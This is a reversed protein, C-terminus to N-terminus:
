QGWTEKSLRQSTKLTWQRHMLWAICQTFPAGPCHCHFSLSRWRWHNRSGWWTRGSEHKHYAMNTHASIKRSSRIGLRQWDTRSDWTAVGSVNRSAGPLFMKWCGVNQNNKVSTTVLSQCSKQGAMMGVKGKELQPSHSAHHALLTSMANLATKMTEKWSTRNCLSWHDTALM